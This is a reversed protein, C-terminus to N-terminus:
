RAIKCAEIAGTLAALAAAHRGAQITDGQEHHWAVGKSHHEALEEMSSIHANHDTESPWAGATKASSTTGKTDYPRSTPNKVKEVCDTCHRENGEPKNYCGPTVCRDAAATHYNFDYTEDARSVKRM